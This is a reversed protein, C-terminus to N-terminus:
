SIREITKGNDNLIYTEPFPVIVDGREREDTYFTSPENEFVLYISRIEKHDHEHMSYSVSFERINDRFMWSNNEFRKLIM